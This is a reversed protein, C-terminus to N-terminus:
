FNKSVHKQYQCLSKNQRWLKETAV